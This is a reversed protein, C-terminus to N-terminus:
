LTVKCSTKVLGCVSELPFRQVPVIFSSTVFPVELKALAWTLMFNALAADPVWVTFADCNTSPTVSVILPQPFELVWWTMLVSHPGVENGGFPRVNGPTIPDTDPFKVNVLGPM